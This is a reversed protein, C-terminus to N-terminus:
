KVIYKEGLLALDENSITVDVSRSVKICDIVSKIQESTLKKGGQTGVVINYKGNEAANIEYRIKNTIGNVTSDTPDGSIALTKVNSGSIIIKSDGVIGRNVNQLMDINADKITVITKNTIGNSGGSILWQYNGGIINSKIEDVFFYGTNGACYLLETELNEVSLNMKKLWALSAYSCNSENCDKKKADNWSEGAGIYNITANKITLNFTNTRVMGTSGTVPGINSNIILVNIEDVTAPSIEEEDSWFYSGGYIKGVFDSDVGSVTISTKKIPSGDISGGIILMKETLEIETGTSESRLIVKGDKSKLIRVTNGECVIYKNGALPADLEEIHIDKRYEIVAVPSFSELTGWLYGDKIHANEIAEWEGDEKLHLAKVNESTIKEPSLLTEVGPTGKVDYTGIYGSVVTGEPIFSSVVSDETGLEKELKTVAATQEETDFKINFTSDSAPFDNPMIKDWYKQIRGMWLKPLMYCM